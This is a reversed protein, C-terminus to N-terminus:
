SAREVQFHLWLSKGSTSTFLAEWQQSRGDRMTEEARALLESDKWSSITRFNQAVLRKQPVGLLDAAAKNASRCRGDANYTIVGHPLVALLAESFVLAQEREGQKAAGAM